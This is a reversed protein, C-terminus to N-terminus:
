CAECPSPPQLRGATGATGYSCSPPEPTIHSARFVAIGLEREPQDRSWAEREAAAWDWDFWPPIMALNAHPEALSPDGAKM